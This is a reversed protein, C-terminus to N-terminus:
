NLNFQVIYDFSPKLTMIVMECVWDSFHLCLMVKEIAKFSSVKWEENNENGELGM